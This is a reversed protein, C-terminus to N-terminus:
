VRETASIESCKRRRRKDTDKM